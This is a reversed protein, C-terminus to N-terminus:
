PPPKAEIRIAEYWAALDDVDQDSLSKAIVAMVESPRRGSRFQRLQEAVYLAPQGALHPANPLTSMGSEGHCVVCAAAKKRGAAVDAALGDGTAWPLVVALLLAGSIRRSRVEGSGRSESM